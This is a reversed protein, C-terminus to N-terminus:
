HMIDPIHITTSNSIKLEELIGFFQYKITDRKQEQLRKTCDPAKLIESACLNLM